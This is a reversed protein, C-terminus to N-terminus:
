RTAGVLAKYYEWADEKAEYETNGKCNNIAGVKNEGDCYVTWTQGVREASSVSIFDSLTTIM